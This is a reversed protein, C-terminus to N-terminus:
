EIDSRTLARAYGINGATDAGRRSGDPNFGARDLQM